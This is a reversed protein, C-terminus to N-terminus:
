QRSLLGLRGTIKLSFEPREKLFRAVGGGVETAWDGVIDHLLIVSEASLYREILSLDSYVCAESHDGDLFVLDYPGYSGIEHGVTRITDVDRGLEVLRKRDIVIPCSFSGELCLVKHGVKFFDLLEKIFFFSGRDDLIGFQETQVRIPLNPDVCVLRCDTSSALALVATSMGIFTGVELIRQPRHKEVAEVIIEGDEPNVCYYDLLVEPFGHTELYEDVRQWYNM